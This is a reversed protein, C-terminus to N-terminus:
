PRVEWPQWRKANTNGGPAGVRRRHIGLRVLLNYIATPSCNYRRGLAACSLGSLYEHILRTNDIAPKMDVDKRLVSQVAYQPSGGVRLRRPVGLPRLLRV